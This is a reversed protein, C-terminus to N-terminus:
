CKGNVTGSNWRLSQSAGASKWMSIQGQSINSNFALSTKGLLLASSGATLDVRSPTRSAKVLKM